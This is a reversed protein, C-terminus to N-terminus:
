SPTADVYKFGGGGLFCVFSGAFKPLELDGGQIYLSNIFSPKSEINISAYFKLLTLLSKRM